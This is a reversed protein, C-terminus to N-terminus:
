DTRAKVFAALRRIGVDIEEGTVYSFSLRVEDPRSSSLTFLSMPCVIVGHDAACVRCCDEDFAFPLELTLFFGGHPRNWRIAGPPSGGLERELAALMRDRNARYFAVRPEVYRRLSCDHDLLVGGLMAQAIPSTNVTTVSKVRSLEVALSHGDPACRQDAVLFGLRLGPLVTKAFSGIYVVTRLADYAKITREREGEYRFMGYPNDEILLMDADHALDILAQRSSASMTTGLPNNFDPVDYFARPVRGRRRVEAIAAAVASPLAGAPASPVGVIEIGLIAAPATIGIYAPDSCLLVDRTPDFLGLLLVLMAEQAGNTVMIDDATVEIGEDNALQRAILDNIIGNTRHYQGLEDMVAAVEVARTVARHRVFRDMAEVAERVSFLSEHPRGPAFSIADPYRLTIENLFNMVDLLPQRLGSRLELARGPGTRSATM